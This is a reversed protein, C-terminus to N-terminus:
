LTPRRPARRESNRSSQSDQHVAPSILCPTEGHRLAANGDGERQYDGANCLPLLAYRRIPRFPNGLDEGLLRRLKRVDLDFGIDVTLLRESQMVILKAHLHNGVSLKALVQQRF